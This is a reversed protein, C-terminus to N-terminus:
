LSQEHFSLYQGSSSEFQESEQRRLLSLTNIPTAFNQPSLAVAKPISMILSAKLPKRGGKRSIM